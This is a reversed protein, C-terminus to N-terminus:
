DIIDRVEVSVENDSTSSFVVWEIEQLKGVRSIVVRIRISFERKASSCLYLDVLRKDRTSQKGLIRPNNLVIM